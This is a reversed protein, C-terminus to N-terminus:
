PQQQVAGPERPQLTGRSAEITDRHAALAEELIASRTGRGGGRREVEEDLWAVLDASPHWGVLPTLNKGTM